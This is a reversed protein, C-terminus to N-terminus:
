DRRENIAAQRMRGSIPMAAIGQFCGASYVILAYERNSDFDARGLKM